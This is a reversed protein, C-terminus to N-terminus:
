GKRKSTAPILLAIPALLFSLPFLLAYEPPEGSRIAVRLRLWLAILTAVIWPFDRAIVAVVPPSAFLAALILSLFVAITRGGTLAALRSQFRALDASSASERVVPSGEITGLGPESGGELPQGLARPGNVLPAFEARAVLVGGSLRAPEVTGARLRTATGGTLTGVFRLLPILLLGTTSHFTARPLVSAVDLNERTSTTVIAAIAREDLLVRDDLLVVYDTSLSALAAAPDVIQVSPIAIRLTHLEGAEEERAALAIQMEGPYKQAALSRLAAQMASPSGTAELIVSVSPLTDGPSALAITSRIAKAQRVLLLLLVFVVSWGAIALSSVDGLDIM